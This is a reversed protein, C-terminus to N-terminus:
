RKEMGAVTAIAPAAIPRPGMKVTGHEFFGSRFDNSQVFVSQDPRLGALAAVAQSDSGEKLSRDPGGVSVAWSKALKGTKGVPSNAECEDRLARAVEGTFSQVEEAVGSLERELEDRFQRDNISIGIM